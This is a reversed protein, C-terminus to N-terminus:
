GNQIRRLIEMIVRYGKDSYLLEAPSKDGLELLPTNLWETVAKSSGLVKRAERLVDVSNAAFEELKM